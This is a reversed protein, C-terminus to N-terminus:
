KFFRLSGTLGTGSVPRVSQAISTVSSQPIPEVPRQRNQWRQLYRDFMEDSIPVIPAITGRPPIPPTSHAFTCYPPVFNALENTRRIDASNPISTIPKPYSPQAVMANTPTVTPGSFYNLPMGFKPQDMSSAASPKSIPIESTVSSVVPPPDNTIAPQKNATEWEISSLWNVLYVDRKALMSKVQEFTVGCSSDSVNPTVETSADTSTSTFAIDKVKTINGQRDVKFSALVAQMDEEDRKKKREELM